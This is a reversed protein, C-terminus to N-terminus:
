QVPTCNDSREVALSTEDLRFNVGAGVVRWQVQVPVILTTVLSPNRVCRHREMARAEWSTVTEDGSDTSDFAFDFSAGPENPEGPVGGILIRTSCWGGAAGGFCASEAHFRANILATRGPLIPVTCVANPVPIFGAAITVKAVDDTMVCKYTIPGGIIRRVEGTTSSAAVAILFVAVGPILWTM